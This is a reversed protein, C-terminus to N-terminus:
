FVLMMKLIVKDKILVTSRSDAKARAAIVAMGPPARASQLAKAM